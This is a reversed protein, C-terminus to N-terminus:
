TLAMWRLAAKCYARWCDTVFNTQSNSIQRFNWELRGAALSKHSSMPTELVKEFYYFFCMFIGRIM